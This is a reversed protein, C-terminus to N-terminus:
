RQKRITNKTSVPLGDLTGFDAIRHVVDGLKVYINGYLCWACKSGLKEVARALLSLRFKTLDERIRIGMGALQKRKVFVSKRAVDTYFRVLIAPPKDNCNDNNGASITGGGSQSRTLRKNDSESRNKAAIRYCNKIDSAKINCKVKAFIDMLVKQLDEKEEVQQVGFIRVNLNRSSQENRDLSLELKSNRDDVAKLRENMVQLANELVTVESRINEQVRQDLKRELDKLIEEKFAALKVDLVKEIDGVTLGM